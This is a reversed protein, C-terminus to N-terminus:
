GHDKIVLIKLDSVGTNRWRRLAGKAVHICTNPTAMIQDNRVDLVGTGYIVFFVVEFPQSHREMTEGQKMTLHVMEINESTYLIKGNPNIKVEPADDLSLIKYPIM